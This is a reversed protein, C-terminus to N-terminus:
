AALHGPAAVNDGMVVPGFPVIPPAYVPVPGKGLVLLPQQMPLWALFAAEIATGISDAAAGFHDDPDDLSFNDCMANKLMMGMMKAQGTSPCAILPTPVNPIPPASPSPFTAFAPYWPLGPVAVGDQWEKFCDSIGKAVADRWDKENGSAAPLSMNKINSELDQGDLCGPAGIACVAAIKLDKIKAALRWIDFASKFGDLMAHCFDKMSGGIDKCTDVHYKNTSAAWFYCMPEPVATKESAEFADGYHTGAPDGQPQSWDYPLKKNKSVFMLDCLPNMPITLGPM